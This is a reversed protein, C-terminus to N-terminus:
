VRAGQEALLKRAAPRIAPWSLALTVGGALCMVAGIAITNPTGIHEALYGATLAGVTGMGMLMMSYVSMVRGRMRDPVMSQVLSNTSGLHIMMAFGGIFLLAVALLMTKSFAFGILTVSFGISAISIWRGFGAVSARSAIFLAGFLAGAGIAGMLTGLGQAGEHLVKDAFIPMLVTYPSGAFSVLGLLLLLARVPKTAALYAFGERITELAPPPDAPPVWANVKMSLLGAIVAIYSAANLTFCWGEGIKAVLIGAIAPGVIRAGNFMASNLAIANVMDERGVMEVLFSQRAPVDFANVAGMCAAIVFVEPITIRDTLTLWAIAAALAMSASQTFVVVKHRSFRDAILGGAPALLFIPFQGAFTVLGLLKASGTLRYVLWAQAVSQMWTGTLSILQGFFFLQFNRHRLARLTNATRPETM